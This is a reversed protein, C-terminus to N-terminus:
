AIVSMRCVLIDMYDLDSFEEPVDWTVGDTSPFFIGMNRETHAYLGDLHLKWPITNDLIVVLTAENERSLNDIKPLTNGSGVNKNLRIFMVEPKQIDHDFCGKVDEQISGYVDEDFGDLYAVFPEKNVFPESYPDKGNSVNENIANEVAMYISGYVSSDLFGPVAIPSTDENM